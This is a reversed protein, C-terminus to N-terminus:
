GGNGEKSVTNRIYYNVFSRRDISEFPLTHGAHEAALFPVLESKNPEKLTIVKFQIDTGQPWQEKILKSSASIESATLPGIPHQLTTTKKAGVHPLTVPIQEMSMTTPPQHCLPTSNSYGTSMFSARLKIHTVPRTPIIRLITVRCLNVSMSGSGSGNM